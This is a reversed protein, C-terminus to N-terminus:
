FAMVFSFFICRESFAPVEFDLPWGTFSVAGFYGGKEQKLSVQSNKWAHTPLFTPLYTAM